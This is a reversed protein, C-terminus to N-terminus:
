RFLATAKETFFYLGEKQEVLGQKFLFLREEVLLNKNWDDGNLPMGLAMAEKFRTLLARADFQRVEPELQTSQQLKPQFGPIKDTVIGFNPYLEDEYERFGKVKVFVQGFQKLAALFEEANNFTKHTAEQLKLVLKGMKSRDTPELYYAMWAKMKYGNDLELDFELQEKPNGQDDKWKSVAKKIGVVKAKLIRGEEVDPPPAGKKVFGM